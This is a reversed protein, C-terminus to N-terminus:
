AGLLTEYLRRYDAAMRDISYGEAHIRRGAAGLRARMAPDDLCRVIAAALAEDDHAVVLGAGALLIDRMGEVDTSVVPVGSALAELAAISLGEWVSSFVLVDSRAILARADARIGTFIARDGLGLRAAEAEAAPRLDGDGVLLFRARPQAALVRAAARLFRDHAKQPAFRGVISVVLDEAGLGLEADLRRREADTLPPPAPVGNPIVTLKAAPLGRERMQAALDASVCVVHDALRLIRAAGDVEEHPVGHYTSLVPPRGLPRGVRTGVAVLGTIRPNHAHVLDPRFAATARAIRGGARLLALPRRATPLTVRRLPIDALEADLAGRDGLLAQEDGRAAADRVLEVVVREAGGVGMASIATELRM